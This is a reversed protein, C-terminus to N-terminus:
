SIYEAASDLITQVAPPIIAASSLIIIDGWNSFGIYHMQKQDNMGTNAM